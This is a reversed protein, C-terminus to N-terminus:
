YDLQDAEIAVLAKAWDDDPEANQAAEDPSLRRADVDLGDTLGLVALLTYRRLYTVISGLMQVPNMVMRPKGDRGTITCDEATPQPRALTSHLETQSEVHRVVCSVSLRDDDAMANWRMTCGLENLRPMLARTLATLSVYRYGAGKADRGIKPPSRQLELLAAHIDNM